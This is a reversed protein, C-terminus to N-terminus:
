DRDMTLMPGDSTGPWWGPRALSGAISTHADGKAANVQPQTLFLAQSLGTGRLDADRLDAGLLDVRRLDAGRLDAAILHAGRLDAGRLDLGRLDAGVLDAGRGIRRQGLDRGQEGSSRVRQSARDLLAGVRGRLAAVDLHELLDAEAEVLATVGAALSAVEVGLSRFTARDTPAGGDTLASHTLATLAGAEALHVLMEHLQRMVPFVAYMQRASDPHDRWDRGGFTVQSVQQGAGFCEFVTCGRYGSGRLRDHISCRSDALLNRCPDGAAKDTPFDVSRAFPLAVCCLGFCNGCDSVLGPGDGTAGTTV